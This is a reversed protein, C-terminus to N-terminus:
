GLQSMLKQRVLPNMLEVNFILSIFNAVRPDLKKEEQITKNTLDIDRKKNVIFVSGDGHIDSGQNRNRKRNVVFGSGDGYVDSLKNSESRKKDVMFASEDGYVDSVQDSERKKDIIFVSGDGYVDLAQNREFAMASLFFLLCKFGLFKSSVCPGVGHNKIAKPKTAHTEPYITEM